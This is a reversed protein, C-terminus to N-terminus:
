RGDIRGTNGGDVGYWDYSFTVSYNEITDTQEWDLEIPSIMTPFLGIFKYRRLATGSKGYQTVLATSKYQSPASTSNKNLNSELSNIQNHWLELAHRIAFDEDNLITVTWPEFTRDGAVRIKRGFYPVEVPNINSEPLSAARCLLPAARDGLSSVPNTFQVEFLTPRAGGLALGARINNIDFPM